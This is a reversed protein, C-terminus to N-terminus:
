DIRAFSLLGLTMLFYATAYMLDVFSANYYLELGATYLFTFETIYQFVLAVIVFLIRSKMKGGLLGRSLSFTLLGLSVSFAEGLPYGFDLFTKLPNAFDVGVDKLFLTYSVFLMVLPILIVQLRGSLTRLAFKAGSAKAFNFMAISYFPILSFYGIDALSPYPVEVKLVLNYYTWILLGFGQGLLGLSLFSLGRGVASSFGGWKRQAIFLGGLGGGLNFFFYSLNFLYNESGVEQGGGYIKLWWLFLLLFYVSAIKAFPHRFMM